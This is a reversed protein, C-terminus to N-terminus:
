RHGARQRRVAEVEAAIDDATLGGVDASAGRLQRVLRRLRTRAAKREQSEIILVAGQRQVSFPEGMGKLLAAPIVLGQKTCRVTM